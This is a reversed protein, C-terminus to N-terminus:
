PIFKIKSFNIDCRICLHSMLSVQAQSECSWCEMDLCSKCVSYISINSKFVKPQVSGCNFCEQM